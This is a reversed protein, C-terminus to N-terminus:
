SNQEALGMHLHWILDGLLSLPITELKLKKILLIGGCMVEGALHM